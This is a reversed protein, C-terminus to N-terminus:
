QKQAAAARLGLFTLLTVAGSYLEEKFAFTFAASLVSQMLKSEIGKYLGKFGENNIIKTFGDYLSNYRLNEDGGEKLQMRSKIVIYPYTFSTACLKSIAGLLFFDIGNLTAGRRKEWWMRLREYITFQIVPNIVLVLAPLLGRFFGQIGEEKFINLIVQRTSLPKRPSQDDMSDKKVLLRTNIVWIPNTLTATAAGAIAGTVMNETITLVHKASAAEFRSKVFEYWYYYVYQTVAIGFMASNIGSYLGAIGEEKLIKLLAERQSVRAANSVQSRTSVTVLPYTLAM